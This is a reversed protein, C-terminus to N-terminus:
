EEKCPENGGAKCIERGNEGRRCTLAAPPTAATGPCSHVHAGSGKKKVPHSFKQSTSLSRGKKRSRLGTEKRVSQLDWTTCVALAAWGQRDEWPLETCGMGGARGKASLSSVSTCTRGEGRAFSIQLCIPCIGGMGPLLKAERSRGPAPCSHPQNCESCHFSLNM